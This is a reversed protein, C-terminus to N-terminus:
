SGVRSDAMLIMAALFIMKGLFALQTIQVPVILQLFSYNSGRKVTAARRKAPGVNMDQQKAKAAWNALQNEKIRFIWNWAWSSAQYFFVM